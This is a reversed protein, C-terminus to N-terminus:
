KLTLNGIPCSCLDQTHYLCVMKEPRCSCTIGSLYCTTLCKDCQRQEDPLLEFDIQQSQMVGQSYFHMKTLAPSNSILTKPNMNLNM